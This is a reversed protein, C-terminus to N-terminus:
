GGVHIEMEVWGDNAIENKAIMGGMMHAQDVAVTRAYERNLTACNSGAVDVLPNNWNDMVMSYTGDENQVAAAQGGQYELILDGRQKQSGYGRLTGKKKVTIGLAEATRALAVLDKIKLRSRTLHSM